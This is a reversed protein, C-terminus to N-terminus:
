LYIIVSVYSGSTNKCAMRICSYAEVGCRGIRLKKLYNENQKLDWGFGTAFKGCYRDQTHWITRMDREVLARENDTREAEELFTENIAKIQESISQLYHTLGFLEHSLHALHSDRVEADGHIVVEPEEWLVKGAWRM